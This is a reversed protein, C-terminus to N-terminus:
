RYVIAGAASTQVRIARKSTFSQRLVGPVGSNTKVAGTIRTLQHTKFKGISILGDADLM